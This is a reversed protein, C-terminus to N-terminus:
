ATKGGAAVLKAHAAEAAARMDAAMQAKVEADVDEDSKTSIGVGPRDAVKKLEKELAEKLLKDKIEDTDILGGAFCVEELIPTGERAVTVRFFSGPIRSYFKM